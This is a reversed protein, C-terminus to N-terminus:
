WCGTGVGKEVDVGHAEMRSPDVIPDLHNGVGIWKPANVVDVWVVRMECKWSVEMRRARGIVSTEM